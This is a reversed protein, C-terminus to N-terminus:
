LFNITFEKENKIIAMTIHVLCALKPIHDNNGWM